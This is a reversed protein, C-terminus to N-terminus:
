QIVTGEHKCVKCPECTHMNTSYVYKIREFVLWKKGLAFLQFCLFYNFSCSPKKADSTKSLVKVTVVRRALEASSLSIVNKKNKGSFLSQGKICIQM